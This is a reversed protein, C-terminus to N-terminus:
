KELAPLSGGRESADRVKGVVDALSQSSGEVYDPWPTFPQQSGQNFLVSTPCRYTLPGVERFKVLAIASQCDKMDDLHELDRLLGINAIGDDNSTFFTLHKYASMVGVIGALLVIVIRGASWFSLKKAAWARQGWVIAALLFAVSGALVFYIQGRGETASFGEGEVAFAEGFILMLMPAIYAAAILMPFMGTFPNPRSGQPNHAYELTKLTQKGASAMGVLMVLSCLILYLM